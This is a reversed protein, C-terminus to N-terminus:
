LTSNCYTNRFNSLLVNMKYFKENNQSMHIHRRKIIKNICNRLLDGRNEVSIVNFIKEYIIIKVENFMQKFVYCSIILLINFIALYKFREKMFFNTSM